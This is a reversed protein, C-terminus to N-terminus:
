ACEHVSCSLASRQREGKPHSYVELSIAEASRRRWMAARMNVDAFQGATLFGDLRGLTIDRHHQPVWRGPADAVAPAM